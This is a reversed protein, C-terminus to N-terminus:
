GTASGRISIRSGSSYATSIQELGPRPPAETLAEMAQVPHGTEWAGSEWVPRGRTALQQREKYVEAQEAFRKPLWDDLRKRWVKGGEALARLRHLHDGDYEDHTGNLIKVQM